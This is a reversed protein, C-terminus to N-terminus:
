RTATLAGTTELELTPILMKYCSLNGSLTGWLAAGSVVGTIRAFVDSPSCGFPEYEGRAEEGLLALTAEVGWNGADDIVGLVEDDEIKLSVAGNTGVTVVVDRTYTTVQSSQALLNLTVKANLSGTYYASYVSTDSGPTIDLSTGTSSSSSCGVGLASVGILAIAPILCKLRRYIPYESM